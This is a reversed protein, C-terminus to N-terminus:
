GFFSPWRDPSPPSVQLLAEVESEIKQRTESSARELDREDRYIPGVQTCPPAVFGCLTPSTRLRRTFQTHTHTLVKDSMGM